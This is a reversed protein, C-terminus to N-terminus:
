PTEKIEYPLETAKTVAIAQALAAKKTKHIKTSFFFECLNECYNADAIFGWEFRYASIKVKEM